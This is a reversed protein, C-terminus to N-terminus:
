QASRQAFLPSRVYAVLLEVFKGQQDTPMQKWTDVFSQEADRCPPRRQAGFVVPVIQRAVCERVQASNALAMALANSDAYAGAFDSPFQSTAAVLRPTRTTNVSTLAGNAGSTSTRTRAEGGHRGARQAGM